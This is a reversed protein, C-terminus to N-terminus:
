VEQTINVHVVPLPLSLNGESARRVHTRHQPVTLTTTTNSTIARSPEDVYKNQQQEGRGLVLSSSRSIKEHAPSVSPSHGLGLLVQQISSRRSALPSELLSPSMSGHNDPEPTLHSRRKALMPITVGLHSIDETDFKYYPKNFDVQLDIYADKRGALLMTDFKAKINTFSPRKKPNENWCELM